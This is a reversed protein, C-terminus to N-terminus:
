GAVLAMSALALLLADLSIGGLRETQLSALAVILLLAYGVVGIFAVPIGLLLAYASSQVTECGGGIPCAIPGGTIRELALYVADLLGLLSLLAAAMRAFPSHDTQM